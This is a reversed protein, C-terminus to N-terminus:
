SISRCRNSKQLHDEFILWSPAQCRDYRYHWHTGWFELNFNERVSNLREFLISGPVFCEQIHCDPRVHVQFANFKLIKHSSIRLGWRAVTQFSTREFLENGSVGWRYEDTSMLIRRCMVIRLTMVAESTYGKVYLWLM